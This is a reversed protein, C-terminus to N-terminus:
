IKEIGWEVQLCLFIRRGFCQKKKPPPSSIISLALKSTRLPTASTDMRRPYLLIVPYATGM